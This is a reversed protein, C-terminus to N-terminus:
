KYIFPDNDNKKIKELKRKLKNKKIFNNIIKKFFKIM